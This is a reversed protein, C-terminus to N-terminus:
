TGTDDNADAEEIEFAAVYERVVRAFFLPSPLKVQEDYHGVGRRLEHVFTAVEDMEDNESALLVALEVSAPTIWRKKTHPAREQLEHLIKGAQNRLGSRSDPQTVKKALQVPRYCSVGRKEQFTTPRAAVSIYVGPEDARSGVRYLGSAATPANLWMDVSLREETRTDDESSRALPLRVQSLLVPASGTRVRVLRLGPWTDQMYRQQSIQMDEPDVDTDRLWSWLGVANTSDVMVVPPHEEDMSDGIAREVFAQFNGSQVRRNSGLSAPTLEAVRTLGEFFPLWESYALRGNREHGMLLSTKGSSVDLKIAIAFSSRYSWFTTNQRIVTIGIIDRPPREPFRRDVRESLGDVRGAHAFCLDKLAAQLRYAYEKVDLATSGRRPAPPLLYQVNARGMEALACRSAIKNVRDDRRPKSEGPRAPYWMPALVLCLANPVKERLKQATRKWAACRAEFRKQAKKGAAPLEARPGTVGTPLPQSFIKVAEGLLAEIWAVTLKRIGDPVVDRDYFLVLSNKTGPRHKDLERINSAKLEDLLKRKPRWQTLDSKVGEMDSLALSLNRELIDTVEAASMADLEEPSLEQIAGPDRLEVSAWLLEEASVKGDPKPRTQGLNLLTPAPMPKFGNGGLISVIKEFLDLKDREPVGSPVPHRQGSAMANHHVLAVEARETSAGGAAISAPDWARANLGLTEICAEMVMDVDWDSRTKTVDFSFARDDHDRSWIHGSIQKHRSWNPLRNRFRRKGLEVLLLPQPLFPLTKVHLTLLLAFTPAGPNSSLPWSMLEARGQTHNHAIVRRWRGTGPLLEHGALLRAAWDALARFSTGSPPRTSGNDPVQDWPLLRIDETTLEVFEDDAVARRLGTVLAGTDPAHRKAWKALRGHLWAEVQRGLKDGVAVPSLAGDDLYLFPEIRDGKPSLAWPRMAMDKRVRSSGPLAIEILQRLSQYPLSIDTIGTADAVQARLAALSARLTPSWRVTVGSQMRRPAAADLTLAFPVVRKERPLEVFLNESDSETSM